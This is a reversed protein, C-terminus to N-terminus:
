CLDHGPSRRCKAKTANRANVTASPETQLRRDANRRRPGIDTDHFLLPAPAQRLHREVHYAIEERKAILDKVRDIDFDL